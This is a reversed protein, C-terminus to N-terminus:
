EPDEPFTSRPGGNLHVAMPPKKVPEAVPKPKAAKITALMTASQMAQQFVLDNRENLVRIRAEYVTSVSKIADLGSQREEDVMAKLAAITQASDRRTIFCFAVSLVVITISLALEM